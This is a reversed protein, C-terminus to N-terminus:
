VVDMFDDNQSVIQVRQLYKRYASDIMHRVLSQTWLLYFPM